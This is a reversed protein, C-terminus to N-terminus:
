QVKEDVLLMSGLDKHYANYPPLIGAYYIMGPVTNSLKVVITHTDDLVAPRISLENETKRMLPIYIANDAQTTPNLIVKPMNITVSPAAADKYTVEIGLDLPVYNLASAVAKVMIYAVKSTHGAVAQEITLTTSTGSAASSKYCEDPVSDAQAQFHTLFSSITIRQGSFPNQILKFGRLILPHLTTRSEGETVIWGANPDDGSISRLGRRLPDGMVSRQSIPVDHKFVLSHFFAGLAILALIGFKLFNKM